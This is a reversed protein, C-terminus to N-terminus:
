HPRRCPRLLSLGHSRPAPVDRSRPVAGRRNTPVGLYDRGPPALALRVRRRVAAATEARTKKKLCFVAYSIQSHSSNLRTSKRDGDGSVAGLRDTRPSHGNDRSDRHRRHVTRRPFSLECGRSVCAARCIPLADHLSLTYIATTSPQRFLFLRLSLLHRPLTISTRLL